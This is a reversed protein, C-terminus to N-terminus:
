SISNARRARGRVAAGARRSGVSIALRQKTFHGIGQQERTLPRHGCLGLPEAELESVRLQVVRQASDETSLRPGASAPDNVTTDPKLRVAIKSM